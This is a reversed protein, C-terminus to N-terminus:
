EFLSTSVNGRSFGVMGWGTHYDAFREFGAGVIVKLHNENSCHWDHFLLLANMGMHPIVARIDAMIQEHSHGGDIFAYDLKEQMAFNREYIKDVDDPSWGIEHVINDLCLEKAVFVNLRYGDADRPDKTLRTEVGYDSCSNVREEIYADVTVLDGGTIRMADAAILSSIGVGTCLEFGRRLRNKIILERIVYAEHERISWPLKHNSLKIFDEVREFHFGLGSRLSIEVIKDYKKKMDPLTKVRIAKICLKISM